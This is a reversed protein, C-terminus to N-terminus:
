VLIMTRLSLLLNFATYELLTYCFGLVHPNSLVCLSFSFFGLSPLLFLFESGQGSLFVMFDGCQFGSHMYFHSSESRQLDQTHQRLKQLTMYAKIM